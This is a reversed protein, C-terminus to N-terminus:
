NKQALPHCMIYVSMHYCNLKSEQLNEIFPWYSTKLLVIKFKDFITGSKSQKLRSRECLLLIYFNLSIRKPFLCRIDKKVGHPIQKISIIITNVETAYRWPSKQSIHNSHLHINIHFRHRETDFGPSVASFEMSDRIWGM